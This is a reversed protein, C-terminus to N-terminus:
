GRMTALAEAWAQERTLGRAMLADIVLANRTKGQEAKRVFAAINSKPDALAAGFTSYTTMGSCYYM